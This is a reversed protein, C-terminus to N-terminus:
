FKNPVHSNKKLAYSHTDFKRKEQLRGERGSFTKNIAQGGCWPWMFIVPFDVAQM